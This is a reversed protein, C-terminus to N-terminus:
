EFMELMGPAHNRVEDWVIRAERAHESRQLLHLVQARQEGSVDRQQDAVHSAAVDHM